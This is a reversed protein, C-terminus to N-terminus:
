KYEWLVPTNNRDYHWFDGKETPQTESYYYCKADLLVENKDSIDIADFQEPTGKFFVVSLATSDIFASHEVTTLTSPLVITRMAKCSAFADERIATVGEPIDITVLASADFFCRFPIETLGEGLTITELRDCDEFSSPSLNNIKGLFNLHVNTINYFSKEGVSHATEPLTLHEAHEEHISEFANDTFGVVTKGNITKPVVLNYISKQIKFGSILIEEPNETPETKFLDDAPIWVASLTIDETVSKATFMWHRGNNEWHSFIHNDRTPATPEAVKQGDRIEVSHIPTGGNSNFTVTHLNSPAETEDDNNTTCSLLPLTMMILACFLSILKIYTKKMFVELM